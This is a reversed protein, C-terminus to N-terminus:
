KGDDNGGIAAEALEGAKRCLWIYTVPKQKEYVAEATVEWVTNGSFANTKRSYETRVSDEGEEVASRGAESFFLIPSAEAATVASRCAAAQLAAKNHYHATIYISGVIVLLVMPMILACEVTYSADLRGCLKFKEV